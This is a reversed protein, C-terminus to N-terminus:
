SRLDAVLLNVTTPFEMRFLTGIDLKNQCQVIIDAQNPRTSLDGKTMAKDTTHEVITRALHDQLYV